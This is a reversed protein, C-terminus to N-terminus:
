DLKSSFRFETDQKYLTHFLKFVDDCLEVEKHHAWNTAPLAMWKYGKKKMKNM